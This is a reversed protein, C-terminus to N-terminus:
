LRKPWIHNTLRVAFFGADFDSFWVQHRARDFAPRSMAYGGTSAPRNYYGVERPHAPDRIDFIRLGSGIYACAALKPNRVRPIGCYHSSYGGIPNTAGPDNRQAGARNETLQVELRLVSVQVPHTPDDVNLIRGVAASNEPRYSFTPDLSLESFEDVMLLYDHGKIRMPEPVQPIAVDPWTYTALLHAQPSPRRDQIESVDYVRLGGETLRKGNPMGLDAVYLIRGDQSTRVGHSLVGNITTLTQPHVPDRLDVATITLGVLASAYFTMGDPSFGSEHGLIGSPTSSLLRPYRCDASVDYVDLMGPATGLTGMVAVLLGRGEHVYLSEHPSLMAPTLLTTTRVPHRADTMDLVATGLGQVGAQLFGLPFAKAVDYYACVHGSGDQYRHVKLGGTTGVHSILRTNCNYGRAARGSAFDAAPVRGDIDTEPHSGHGCHPPALAGALGRERGAADVGNLAVTLGVLTVAAVVAAFTRRLAGRAPRVM